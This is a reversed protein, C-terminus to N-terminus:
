REMGVRGLNAEPVVLLGVVTGDGGGEATIATEPLDAAEVDALVTEHDLIEVDAALSDVLEGSCGDSLEVLEIAGVFGVIDAVVLEQRSDVLLGRAAEDKSAVELGLRDIEVAGAPVVTFASAQDEGGLGGDADDVDFIPM